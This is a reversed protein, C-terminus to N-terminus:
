HDGSVSGASHSLVFGLGILATVLLMGGVREWTASHLPIRQAVAVLGTSGFLAAMFFTILM